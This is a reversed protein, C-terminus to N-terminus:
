VMRGALVVVRRALEASAARMTDPRDLYGPTQWGDAACVRALQRRRVAVADVSRGLVDAIDADCLGRSVLLSLRHDEVTLWPDQARSM